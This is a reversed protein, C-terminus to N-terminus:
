ELVVKSVKMGGATTETITPSPTKGAADVFQGAWRDVNAKVDGGQGAGFYFVACEGDEADGAAKPIRYQAKRMSSTPPVTPWADPATWALDAGGTPPHGPPLAPAPDTRSTALPIQGSAPQPAATTADRAGGGCGTALVLAATALACRMTMTRRRTSRVIT